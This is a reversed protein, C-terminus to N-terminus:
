IMYNSETGLKLWVHSIKDQSLVCSSIPLWIPRKAAEQRQLGSLHHERGPSYSLNPAHKGLIHSTRAESGVVLYFWAYHYM